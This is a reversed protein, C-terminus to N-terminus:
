LNKLEEKAEVYSEYGKLLDDKKEDPLAFEFVKLTLVPGGCCPFCPKLFGPAMRGADEETKKITQELAMKRQAGTPSDMASLQSFLPASGAILSAPLEFWNSNN